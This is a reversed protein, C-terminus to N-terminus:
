LTQVLRHLLHWLSMEEKLGCEPVRPLQSPQLAPSCVPATQATAALRPCLSPGRKMGKGGRRNRVKNTQTMVMLRMKSIGADGRSRRQRETEREREKRMGAQKVEGICKWDMEERGGGQCLAAEHARPCHGRCGKRSKCGATEM